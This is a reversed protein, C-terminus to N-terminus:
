DALYIASNKEHERVEVSILKVNPNDQALWATLKNCIYEAFKECGTDPIIRLQILGSQNMIKFQNLHPDDAAIIVTHDLLWNMWEKPSFEKIGELTLEGIKHNSRKFSGFDQVWNRQDLEGEFVLKVSIGYGHLFQCHTTSARWQRFCTSYGDHVKTSRFKAM